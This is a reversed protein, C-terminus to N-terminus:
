GVEDWDVIPAHDRRELQPVNEAFVLPNPCNSAAFRLRQQLASLGSASSIVSM